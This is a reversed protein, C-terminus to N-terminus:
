RRPGAGISSTEVHPDGSAPGRGRRVRWLLRTALGLVLDLATRRRSARGEAARKIRRLQHPEMFDNFPHMSVSEWLLADATFAVRSRVQLCTRGAGIPSLMLAWTAQWYQTPKPADFPLYRRAGSDYLGGILLMCPAESRLVSCGPHGDLRAMQVLLPWIAVPAADITVSHTIQKRADRILDDGPLAPGLDDSSDLM